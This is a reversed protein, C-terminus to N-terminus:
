QCLIVTNTRFFVNLSPYVYAFVVKTENQQWSKCRDYLKVLNVEWKRLGIIPIRATYGLSRLLISRRAGGRPMSGFNRADSFM